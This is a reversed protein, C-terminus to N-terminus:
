NGHDSAGAPRGNVRLVPLWTRLTAGLTDGLAAGIVCLSQEWPHGFTGAAFDETLFAFYDGDPFPPVPWDDLRDQQGGDSTPDFRYGPHQWDLVILPESLYSSLAWWVAANVAAAGAAFSAPDRGFILKLDITISPTPEEIAPWSDPNTGARFGFTSRFRSWYRDDDAPDLLSWQPPPM